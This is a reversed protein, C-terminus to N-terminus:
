RKWRHLGWTCVQDIEVKSDEHKSDHGSKCSSEVFAKHTNIWKTNVPTVQSRATAYREDVKECVGLGRLHKLEQERAHRVASWPLEKGTIDDIFQM